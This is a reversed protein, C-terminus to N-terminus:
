EMRMRRVILPAVIYILTSWAPVFFSLIIGIVSLMPLVMNIKVLNQLEDMTSENLLTYSHKLLANCEIIFFIYIFFINLHFFLNADLTSSHYGLLSSTFPILAVGMLSGISAWIHPLCSSQLHKFIKMQIVWFNGLILFSLGYAKFLHFYEQIHGAVDVRESNGIEPLPLSLVLITMAIAYIGDSLGELRRLAFTEQKQKTVKNLM